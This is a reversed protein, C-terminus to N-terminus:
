LVLKGIKFFESLKIEFILHCSLKFYGPLMETLRKDFAEFAIRCDSILKYTTDHWLTNSNEIDLKIAEKMTKPIKIGYRYTTEWYLINRKLYNSNKQYSSSGVM